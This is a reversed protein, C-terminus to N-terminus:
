ANDDPKDENKSDCFLWPYVDAKTLFAIGFFMLAVAEVAWVGAWIEGLFILAAMAIVMGTGCCTYIGNRIRKNRTKEGSSKTFLFLVNIALLGFFGIACINHIMSSISQPLQFTGINGEGGSTPFLCIGLGFIGTLTNILDDVWTYGRYCVLLLGASGLIIM